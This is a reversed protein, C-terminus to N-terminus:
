AAVSRRELEIRFFTEADAYNDFRVDFPLGSHSVTFHRRVPLIGPLLYITVDALTVDDAFRVVSIRQTM